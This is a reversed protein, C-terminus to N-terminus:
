QWIGEIPGKCHRCRGDIVDNRIVRFGTREIVKRGCDACFTDEGGQGPINGCYVYKLGAKLGIERARHLTTAPTRPLHLMKYTPHFASLHWPVEPGLSFVFQAIEEFEKESDNLTPLILTTVEVWIGLAM